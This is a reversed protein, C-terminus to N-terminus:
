RRSWGGHRTSRVPTQMRSSPMRPTPNWHVGLRVMNVGGKALFRAAHAVDKLSFDRFTFNVAWFRVPVGDGRVFREEAPSLRIFGNQGAIPENM